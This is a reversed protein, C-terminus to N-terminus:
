IDIEVVIGNGVMEFILEIGSWPEPKMYTTNIMKAMAHFHSYAFTCTLDMSHRAYRDPM